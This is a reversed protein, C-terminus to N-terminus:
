AMNSWDIRKSFLIQRSQPFTVEKKTAEGLENYSEDIM